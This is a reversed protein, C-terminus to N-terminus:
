YNKRMKELFSKVEAWMIVANEVPASYYEKRIGAEYFGYKRYLARAPLNGERVELTLHPIDREAAYQMMDQMLIDSFHQGQYEPAIAINLIHGEDFIQWFGLYGIVRGEKLLVTYRSRENELEQRFLAESWPDSFCRRELDLIQPIHEAEMLCLELMRGQM